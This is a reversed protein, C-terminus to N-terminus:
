ENGVPTPAAPPLSATLSPPTRGTWERWALTWVSSFYAKVAGNIILFLPWLLFCLIAAFGLFIAGFGIVLGLALQLVFIIIAPGLNATLVDWARRYSDFVGTNELMAARVSLDSLIMLVLMIPLLLCTLCLFVIVSGGTLANAVSESSLNSFGIATTFAFLGMGAILLAPIAPVLGIGALRWVKQWAQSWAAKFGTTRGEEIDDVGAVLAGSAVMSLVVFVIMLVLILCAIAIILGIAIGGFWSMDGVPFSVDAGPTTVNGGTSSLDVSSSNGSSGGGGSLAAIIGLGILFPRARLLEFSRSFLKGYDM